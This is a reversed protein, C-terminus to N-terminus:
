ATVANTKPTSLSLALGILLAAIIVLNPDIPLQSVARPIPNALKLAFRGVQEALLLLFAFPILTRWRILIVIAVVSLLLHDLGLIKTVFLFSGAPGPEWSDIPIADTRVLDHTNFIGAWAMVLRAAVAAALLLIATKYGRYDNNAQAPFLM